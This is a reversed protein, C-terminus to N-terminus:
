KAKIFGGSKGTERYYQITETGTLYRTSTTNGVYGNLPVGIGAGISINKWCTKEGTAQNVATTTGFGVSVVADISTVNMNSEGEFVEMRFNNIDGHYNYLTLGTTASVGLGGAGLTINEYSLTKGADPGKLIKVHSNSIDGAIGGQADFSLVTWGIAVTGNRPKQIRKAEIISPSFAPALIYDEGKGAISEIKEGQHNVYVTDMGTPDIVNIPNNAAYAHPSINYYNEAHPDVTSFRGISPEYFRAGYDYMNLGHMQDLEKGNYKYPQKGQETTSNEAFATGFPYYHSKQVVTGSANAVVRNNGLHDTVFFHYTNSEIYGGDVLVRKLANNEYIINGVYDTTKSQTLSSVNIGSGIVPVTNYNPNM